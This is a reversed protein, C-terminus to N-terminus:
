AAVDGRNRPAGRLTEAYAFGLRDTANEADPLTTQDLAVFVKEGGDTDVRLRWTKANPGRGYAVQGVWGVVGTVGKYKRGGTVTVAKGVRAVTVEDAEREAARKADWEERWAWYRETAEPTADVEAGNLYTWCRTTGWEVTGFKGPETEVFACFDSDDYWNKEFVGFVGGVYKLRFGAKTLDYGKLMGAFRVQEAETLYRDTQPNFEGTKFEHVFTTVAM